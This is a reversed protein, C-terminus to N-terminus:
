FVEKYLINRNNYFINAKFFYIFYNYFLIAISIEPIFLLLICSSTYKFISAHHIEKFSICKM